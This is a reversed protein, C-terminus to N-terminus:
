PLVDLHDIEGVAAHPVANQSPGLPVVLNIVKSDPATSKCKPDYPVAAQVQTAGTANNLVTWGVYVGCTPIRVTIATSAQGVPAWPVSELEYPRSIVPSGPGACGGPVQIQTEDEGTYADIVVAIM